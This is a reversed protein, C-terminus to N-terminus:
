TGVWPHKGTEPELIVANFLGVLPLVTHQPFYRGIVDETALNVGSIPTPPLWVGM